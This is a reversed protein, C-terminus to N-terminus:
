GVLTRLQDKLSTGLSAGLPRDEPRVAGAPPTLEGRQEMVVEPKLLHPTDARNLPDPLVTVLQHLAFRRAGEAEFRVVGLNSRFLIQRSHSLRDLQRFHRTAVQAYAQFASQGKAEFTGLTPPTGPLPVPRAMVPRTTPETDPRTDFIPRLTWSFDPRKDARVRTRAAPDTEPRSADAPWGHLPLHAPRERIRKRLVMPVDHESKGPPFTFAGDAGDLWGMRDGGLDVRILEQAFSLSQDILTLYSPMVNKFGSSVFQLIRSPEAEGKRWYSLQTATSNHVDGSLLVVKRHPALRATLAEFTIADLAWSEIADPNLGPMAEGGHGVGIKGPTGLDFARYAGPAVIEDFVSPALVQLPAVVILVEHGAPLPAGPVQDDIMTTGVNGPPGFISAFGRRTRNDLVAVTFQPGVVSYHWKMPADVAAHRGRPRTPDVPQPLLDLGFLRDLERTAAPQPWPGAPPTFLREAQALVQAGVAGSAYRVFDNGWDQFLAYSALANRIVQRGLPQPRAADAGLVRACWEPNLNWDDTVDHDDFIMYTPVSALARRVKGQGLAFKRLNRLHGHLSAYAPWVHDGALEAICRAIMTRSLNTYSEDKFKKRQEPNAPDDAWSSALRNILADSLPADAVDAKKARADEGVLSPAEPVLWPRPQEDKLCKVVFAQWDENGLLTDLHLRWADGPGDEYETKRRRLEAAIAVPGQQLAPHELQTLRAIGFRKVLGRMVRGQLQKMFAAFVAAHKRSLDEMAAIAEPSLEERLAPTLQALYDPDGILERFGDFGTRLDPRSLRVLMFRAFCADFKRANRTVLQEPPLALEPTPAPKPPRPRMDNWAEWRGNDFYDAVKTDLLSQCFLPVEEDLLPADPSRTASDITVDDLGRWAGPLAKFGTWFWDSYVSVYMAAFEGFSLLHSEGDVSTFRADALTLEYRGGAPFRSLTAPYVHQTLDLAAGNRKPARRLLLSEVVPEGDPRPELAGLATLEEVTDSAAGREGSIMQHALRNCLILHLPSLDDAYIQDGGLFLQHPRQLAATGLVAGEARTQGGFADNILTDIWPMADFHSNAVRRCSGYVIRLDTLQAPPLAFSPLLGAAYGLPELSAWDDAALGAADFRGLLGESALTRTKTEGGVKLELDYAYNVGPQLPVEPSKREAVVLAIYLRAGVRLAPVAPSRAIPAVPTASKRLGEWLSLAVTAPRSLAVWVAVARPEARRLIPGALVFPLEV